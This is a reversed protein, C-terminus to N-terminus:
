DNWAIEFEDKTIFDKEQLELENLAQDYLMSEGQVPNDKSLLIKGKSTLEIQRIAEQDQFHIFFLIEEGEWYKRIFTEIM